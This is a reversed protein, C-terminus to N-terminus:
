KLTSSNFFDKIPALPDPIEEETYFIPFNQSIYIREFSLSISLAYLVWVLFWFAFHHEIGKKM